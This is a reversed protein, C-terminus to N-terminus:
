FTHSPLLAAAAFPTAASLSAVDSVAGFHRQLTSLGADINGQADYWYFSNFYDHPGAYAEVIRDWLSDPAYAVGFLQGEGGQHGGFLVPTDSLADYRGGGLKFGDGGLGASHGTANAPNLLSQAVMAQRMRGAAYRLGGWKLSSLAADQFRGGTLGAAVGRVAASGVVRGATWQGGANVGINRLVGGAATNVLADRLNGGSVASSVGGSVAGGLIAGNTLASNYAGMYTGSWMGGPSWVLKSVASDIFSHTAWAGIYYGAAISAITQFNSKAFGVLGKVARKIGKFISKLFFGSPDTFKMPNNLAYSYRNYSQTSLPLSVYPDPSLFRGTRPDYIRGNMHVLDVEELYEHGAFGRDIVGQLAVDGSRWDGPRREGFPMYSSREVVAGSKDTITDVSGLADQHLYFLKRSIQGNGHRDRRIAVLRGGAHIYYLHEVSGDAKLVREYFKGFYSTVDGGSSRKLVRDGNADYEFELWAGDGAELMAPKGFSFWEATLRPGYVLNGSADYENRDGGVRVAAHPLSGANGYEYDGVDSKFVLNGLADYAYSSFQNYDDHDSDAVVVSVVLRDLEDYALYESIQQAADTRVLLNDAEDYYYILHRIGDFEGSDSKIEQLYGNGTHYRHQTLWGNGTRESVVRGVPDQALAQWYYIDDEVQPDEDTALRMTALCGDVEDLIRESLVMRAYMGREVRRDGSAQASLAADLVGADKLFVAVRSLESPVSAQCYAATPELRGGAVEGRLRAAGRELEDAATDLAEVLSRRGSATALRLAWHRYFASHAVYEELKIRYLEDDSIKGFGPDADFHGTKFFSSHASSLYGHPNYSYRLTFGRPYHLEELRGRDHRMGIAYGRNDDISSTKGAADYSFSRQHDGYVESSLKGVGYRATDYSWRATGEERVRELLRGLRDYQMRQESGIANVASIVRGFPDYAFGEVGQDPYTVRLRNGFIDYEMTVEDGHANVGRVMRGAPDYEFSMEAGPPEVIRIVRDLGDREITKSRGLEDIHEVVLGAYVFHRETSEGDVLPSSERVLRDLADYEREVWDASEGAAFPLSIRTVRGYPDYTRDEFLTSGDFGVTRVSLVRGYADHLMRQLPRGSVQRAVMYVSGAPADEPLRYTRVVTTQVGGPRSEGSLRGWGDYQRTTVLGNADIVVLPRGFRADHVYTTVHGEANATKVPFRGREDYVHRTVVPTTAQHIAATIEAVRNGFEDYEYRQTVALPAHPSVSRSLLLGTQPEYDFEVTRDVGVHREDSEELRTHTRLGLVWLHEDNLYEHQEVRVFSRGNSDTTTRVTGVNGYEDHDSFSVAVESVFSGDLEYRRSVSRVVHPFVTKGHARHLTAYENSLASILQERDDVVQQEVVSAFYPFQQSYVDRTVIRKGVDRVERWAFGSFGFGALDSKAGGYRYRTRLGGRSGEAGQQVASVVQMPPPTRVSRFGTDEALTHVSSSRLPLYRLRVEAGLGDVFSRVLNGRKGVAYIQALAVKPDEMRYVDTAGDGNFDYFHMREIMRIQKAFSGDLVFDGGEYRRWGEGTALYFRNRGAGAALHYIDTRADGNFDGFGVRLLSARLGEKGSSEAVGPASRLTYSGDGRSLHVEDPTVSGGPTAYYIDTLGDGNFDGFKIRLLQEVGDRRSNFHIAPAEVRRYQGEGVTLYVYGPAGGSVGSDGIHYLDSIGDGNFDGIRIRAVQVRARDENHNAASDIGPVVEYTGDGNSLYVEDTLASTGRHRIRYVDTRSDGNFDGFRLCDRHVCWVAIGPAAAVGSDIGDVAEFWLTEGSLGSLYLADHGSGYRFQYVDTLGDGNFDAFHFNAPGANREVQTRPGTVSMFSGDGQNLWVADYDEGTGHIEYMDTLGDGNFDGPWYLPFEESADGAYAIDGWHSFGFPSSSQWHFVSPRLCSGGAACETLSALRDPFVDSSGEYRLRYERVLAGDVRAVVRALRQTLPLPVGALYAISDSARPEYQFSLVAEGYRIRKIHRENDLEIYDIDMVNGMRDVVQNMLWSLVGGDASRVRANANGGYVARLGDKMWVVFGAGDRTVKTFSEVYTRLEESSLMAESGDVPVLFSGDICLVDRDDMAVQRRYGHVPETAACRHIFSVGELSWGVGLPGGSSHSSYVLALSPQMRGPGPPAALPIRYMAGGQQDVAFDWPTTGVVVARDAAVWAPFSVALLLLAVSGHRRGGIM